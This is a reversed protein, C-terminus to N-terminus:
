DPGPDTNIEEVSSGADLAAFAIPNVVQFFVRDMDDERSQGDARPSRQSQLSRQPSRVAAGAATELSLQM